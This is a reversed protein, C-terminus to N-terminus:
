PLYTCEFTLRERDGVVQVGYTQQIFNLTKKFYMLYLIESQIQPAKAYKLPRYPNFGKDYNREPRKQWSINANRYSHAERSVFM